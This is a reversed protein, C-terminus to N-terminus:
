QFDAQNKLELCNSFGKQRGWKKSISNSIRSKNKPLLHSYDSHRALSNFGVTTQDSLEAEWSAPSPCM